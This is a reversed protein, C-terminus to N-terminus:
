RVKRKGQKPPSLPGSPVDTISLTTRNRSNTLTSAPRQEMRLEFEANGLPKRGQRHATLDLAPEGMMEGIERESRAKYEDKKFPNVINRQNYRLSKRNPELPDYEAKDIINLFVPKTNSVSLFKSYAENRTAVAKKYEEGNVKASVEGQIKNFVKENWQKQQQQKRRHELKEIRGLYESVESVVEEREEELQRYQMETERNKRALSQLRKEAEFEFSAMKERHVQAIKAQHRDSVRTDVTPESPLNQRRTTPTPSINPLVPISSTADAGDDVLMKWLEPRGVKIESKNEDEYHWNDLGGNEGGTFPLDKNNKGGGHRAKAAIAPRCPAREFATRSLHSNNERM